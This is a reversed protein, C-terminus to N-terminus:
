GLMPGLDRFKETQQPLFPRRQQLGFARGIGCPAVFQQVGQGFPEFRMRWLSRHDGAPEVPLMGAVPSSSFTM